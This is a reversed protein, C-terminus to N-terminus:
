AVLFIKVNTSYILKMRFDKGKLPCDDECSAETSYEGSFRDKSGYLKCSPKEGTYFEECKHYIQENKKFPLVCPIGNVSKQCRDATFSLRILNSNCGLIEKM